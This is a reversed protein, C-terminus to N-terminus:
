AEVQRWVQDLMQLATLNRVVFGYQLNSARFDACLEYDPHSPHINDWGIGRNPLGDMAAHYDWLPLSRQAAIDRIIANFEGVKMESGPLNPITSLVPIVGMDESIQVIREMDARYQDASRYSMDNTGFMIFAMAPRTWRYECALPSEGPSCWAPDAFAPDLAEWAAWGVGAALSLNSFSNGQRAMTTSFRNIVPQLDAFDGLTYLGDGIPQLFYLSVTISDGVKSFVDARNGLAQGVRYIMQVNSAVTEPMPELTYANRLTRTVIFAAVALLILFYAIYRM